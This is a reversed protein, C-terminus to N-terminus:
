LVLSFSPSWIRRTYPGPVHYWTVASPMHFGKHSIHGRIFLSHVHLTTRTEVSHWGTVRADAPSSVADRESESHFSVCHGWFLWPAAPVRLWQGHPWICLGSSIADVGCPCEPRSRIKFNILSHPPFGCVVLIEPAGLLSASLVCPEWNSILSEKKKKQRDWRHQISFPVIAMWHHGRKQSRDVKACESFKM